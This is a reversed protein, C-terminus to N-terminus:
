LEEPTASAAQTAIDIHLKRKPTLQLPPTAEHSVKKTGQVKFSVTDSNDVVHLSNSDLDALNKTLKYTPLMTMSTENKNEHIMGPM